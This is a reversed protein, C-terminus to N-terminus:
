DNTAVTWPVPKTGPATTTALPSVRLVFNMEPLVSSASTGACYTAFGLVPNTVTTFGPLMAELTTKKGTRLGEDVTCIRTPGCKVAGDPATAAPSKLLSPLSSM